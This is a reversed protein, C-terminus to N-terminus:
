KILEIKHNYEEESIEGSAYKEKLIDIARSANQNVVNQSKVTRQSPVLKSVKLYILILFVLCAIVILALPLMMFGGMHASGGYFGSRM